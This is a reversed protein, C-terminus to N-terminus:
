AAREAAPARAPPRSVDAAEADALRCGAVSGQDGVHLAIWGRVQPGDNAASPVRRRALAALVRGCRPCPTMARAM